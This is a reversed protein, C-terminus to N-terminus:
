LANLLELGLARHRNKINSDLKQASIFAAKANKIDKTAKYARALNVWIDADKPSAKTAALYAQQAEKHKDEIMFINGRNNMAAANKPQLVLVKDLYKMAEKRDGAKALIIGMQLHADADNPNSKIAALHRRTKTQSSIKLVSLLDGPFKKEIEERKVEPLKVSSAPLSAPKYNDWSKHVDLVTLGNDKWKYYTSAGKEWAKVFASGVLTTEVPIWLMDEHIVYMNDMTYGDDDAAIGTSFMMLMHGPVELVRTDMGMSELASSYFAVLDDCDGSKRELTERPFQLYDVTHEKGSSVQYPNSPDQIYTMGMTGMMNFLAAALQAEDKTEKFSSVVSRTIDIIPADKPTVFVAFRDREDWTLRHKDYVNVTPNKSYSVRKGSEFHSAEILAQVSSDETLTLISNNFVAKLPIEESQGPQLKDLKAETPFDMFDKLQFTVVLKVMTKNTNNTLKIRGIGDREYIKYSNSFIDRLQVVDIELPPRNFVQTTAEVAAKESETGDSSLVSVYYTYKTEPQLAERTFTSEKVEGLQTYNEGDKQYVRYAALYKSEVAPWNLKVQWPTTEAQISELKAPMFKTPVGSAVQSSAGEFGYHTEAGIRYFYRVDADLDQDTFSSSPSIGVQVFGGDETKSRYIRYQKIYPAGTVAWRLEVAHVGGQAALQQPAEPKLLAALVQVRKNGMDSILLDSGGGFAISVPEDFAGLGTGKAGFSRLLQGKPSFVKVHNGDLVLVEDNAAVLAVPRTFLSGEKSRGFEGQSKGSSSYSFVTDRSGDLIFLNDRQDFALSIPASMRAANEGDLSSLFVGDGRFIQVNRNSRDAVFVLGSSSVAISVPDSFQGAGSGSSGFTMLTKGTADLKMGRRGKRDLVWINGSADVTVAALQSDEPKIAGTVAGKQIVLLSKRDKAIAYFTEKRDWAIQEVEAAINELWKVSARGQAKPLTAQMKGAEVVFFDILGKQSDGVYVQQAKDVAIGSLSKFQAVGDGRSGFSYTQNGEFDYKYIAFSNEDAVYIGDEAVAMAVPKGLKPLSRLYMGEPTYVKIQRDDADRVYVRGEADLAIDTPEELKFPLEKKESGAEVSLTLTSLFVGNVGFMQIRENGTDTVYVVGEHVTIGAPEDLVMDGVLGSAKSGFKGLYKGSGLDYMVVHEVDSDAVYITDNSTAVAEPKKLLVTDGTRAALTFLTKGDRDLADVVGGERTIFLKGGGTGLLRTLKPARLEKQFDAKSFGNGLAPATDASWAQTAIFMAALALSLKKM